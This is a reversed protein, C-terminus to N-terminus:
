DMGVYSDSRKVTIFDSPRIKIKIEVSQAYNASNKTIQLSNTWHAEFCKLITAIDFILYRYIFWIYIKVQMLTSTSISVM